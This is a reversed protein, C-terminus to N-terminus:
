NATPREVHDIVLVDVSDTVAELKLGLQQQIATFFDPFEYTVGGTYRLDDPSWRLTFDYRGSLGTRDIVPRDMLLPRWYRKLYGAFDAITASKV